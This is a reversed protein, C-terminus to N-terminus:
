CKATFLVCKIVTETKTARLMCVEETDNPEGTANVILEDTDNPEDSKRTIVRVKDNSDVAIFLKNQNATLNYMGQGTSRSNLLHADDRIIGSALTFTVDDCVLM